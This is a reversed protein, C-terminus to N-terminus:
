RGESTEDIGDAFTEGKALWATRKKLATSPASTRTTQSGLVQAERQFRRSGAAGVLEVVEYAGRPLLRLDSAHFPSM